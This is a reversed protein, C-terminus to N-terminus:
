ASPTERQWASGRFWLRAASGYQEIESDRQHLKDAYPRRELDRPSIKGNRAQRESARAIEVDLDYTKFTKRNFGLAVLVRYNGTGSKSSVNMEYTRKKKAMIYSSASLFCSFNAAALPYPREGERCKM